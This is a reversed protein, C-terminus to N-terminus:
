TNYVVTIVFGFFKSFILSLKGNKVVFGKLQKLRLGTVIASNLDDGDM